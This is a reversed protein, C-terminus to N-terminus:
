ESKETVRFRGCDECHEHVAVRGTENEDEGLWEFDTIIIGECNECLGDKTTTLNKM